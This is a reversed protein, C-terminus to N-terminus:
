QNRHKHGVMLETTANMSVFAPIMLPKINLQEWNKGYGSRINMWDISILAEIVDM